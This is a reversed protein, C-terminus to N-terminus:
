ARSRRNGLCDLTDTRTLEEVKLCARALKLNAQNLQEIKRGREETEYYLRLVDIQRLRKGSLQEKQVRVFERINECASQHDGTLECDRSREGPNPNWWPSVGNSLRASGNQLLSKM